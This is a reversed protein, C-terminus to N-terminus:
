QQLKLFEEIAAIFSNLIFDQNFSNQDFPTKNKFNESHLFSYTKKFVKLINSFDNKIKNYIEQKKLKKLGMLVSSYTPDHLCLNAFLFCSQRIEQFILNETLSEVKQYSILNYFSNFSNLLNDIDKLRNDYKLKYNLSLKNNLFFALLLDGIVFSTNDSKNLLSTLKEFFLYVKKEDISYTDANLHFNLLSNIDDLIITEKKKKNFISFFSNQNPYSIYKEIYFRCLRLLFIFYFFLNHKDKNNVSSFVSILENIQLHLNSISNKFLVFPENIENEAFSYTNKEEILVNISASIFVDANFNSM